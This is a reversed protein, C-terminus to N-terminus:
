GTWRSVHKSTRDGELVERTNRKSAYWRRAHNRTEIPRKRNLLSTQSARWIAAGYNNSANTSRWLGRRRPGCKRKTEYCPHIGHDSFYTLFFRRHMYIHYPKSRWTSIVLVSLEIKSYNNTAGTRSEHPLPGVVWVFGVAIRFQPFNSAPSVVFLCSEVLSHHSCSELSLPPGLYDSGVCWLVSIQCVICHVLNPSIGSRSTLFRSCAAYSVWPSLM